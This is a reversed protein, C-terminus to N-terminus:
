GVRRGRHKEVRLEVGDSEREARQRHAPVAQHIQDRENLEDKEPAVTDTGPGAEDGGRLEVIQQEVAHEADNETAPQSLHNEVVGAIVQRLGSSITATHFPPM